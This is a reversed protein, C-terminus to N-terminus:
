SLTASKWAGGVYVWLKSGSSDVVMPAFGTIVSPTGSPTGAMVPIQPFGNVANTALSAKGLGVAGSSTIQINPTNGTSLILPISGTTYFWGQNGLGSSYGSGTIEVGVGKGTDNFLVVDASAATGSNSNTISIRSLTNVNREIILDGTMTDGAKLVNLSASGTMSSSFSLVGSGNTTLVQGSTGDTAPWRNANLVLYQGGGTAPNIHLDKDDTTTILAPGSAGADIVLYQDVDLDIKLDTTAPPAIVGGQTITTGDKGVIFSTTSTGKANLTVAM